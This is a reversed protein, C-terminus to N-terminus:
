WRTMLPIFFSSVMRIYIRRGRLPNMTIVILYNMRSIPFVGTFLSVRFDEQRKEEHEHEHAYDSKLDIVIVRVLVTGCAPSLVFFGL